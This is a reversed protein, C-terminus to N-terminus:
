FASSIVRYKQVIGEKNFTVILDMSASSSNSLVSSNSSGALLISWGSSSGQAGSQYSSKSYNWVENGESNTTIINPAGFLEMVENQTTKGEVIKTKIMGVSLNSKQEPVTTNQKNSCGVIILLFLITLLLKKM